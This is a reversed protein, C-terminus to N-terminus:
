KRGFARLGETLSRALISMHNEEPMKVYYWTLGGSKDEELIKLFTEIESTLRPENGVCIHLYNNKGKWRKLFSKTNIIITREGHVYIFYPISVLM